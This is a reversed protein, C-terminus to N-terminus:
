MKHVVKSDEKTVIFNFYFNFLNASLLSSTLAIRLETSLAKKLHTLIIIM